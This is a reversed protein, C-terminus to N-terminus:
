YNNPFEYEESYKSDQTPQKDKQEPARNGNQLRSINMLLSYQQAIISDFIAKEVDSLRAYAKQAESVYPTTNTM